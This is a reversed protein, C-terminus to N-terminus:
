STEHKNFKHTSCILRSLFWAVLHTLYIGHHFHFRDAPPRMQMTKWSSVSTATSRTAVGCLDPSGPQSARGTVGIWYDMMSMLTFGGTSLMSKTKKVEYRTPHRKRRLEMDTLLVFVANTLLYIYTVFLLTANTIYVISPFSDCHLGLHSTHSIM